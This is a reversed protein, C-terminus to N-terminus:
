TICESSCNFVFDLKGRTSSEIILGREVQIDELSRNKVIYGM